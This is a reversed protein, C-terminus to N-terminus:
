EILFQIASTQWAMSHQDHYVQRGLWLTNIMIYKQKDMLEHYLDRTQM